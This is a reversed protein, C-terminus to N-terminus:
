EEMKSKAYEVAESISPKWSDVDDVIVTIGVVDDFGEGEGGPIPMMASFSIAWNGDDDFVLCPAYGKHTIEELWEM